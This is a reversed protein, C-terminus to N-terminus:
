RTNSYSGWGGMKHQVTVVGRGDQATCYCGREWRTNYVLLREGMKHQVTVVGRGDQATCYCGREWRTNYVLLREGM